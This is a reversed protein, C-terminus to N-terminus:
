RVRRRDVTEPWEIEVASRVSTAETSGPKLNFEGFREVVKLRLGEPVETDVPRGDAPVIQAPRDDEAFLVNWKAM